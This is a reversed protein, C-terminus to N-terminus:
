MERWFLSLNRVEMVNQIEKIEDVIANLIQQQDKYIDVLLPHINTEDLTLLDKEHFHITEFFLYGFIFM